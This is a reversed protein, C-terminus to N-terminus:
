RSANETGFMSHFIATLTEEQEVSLSGRGRRQRQWGASIDFSTSLTHCGACGWPRSCFLAAGAQSSCGADGVVRGAGVGAGLRPMARTWLCSVSPFMAAEQLSGGQLQPFPLIRSCLVASSDRLQCIARGPDLRATSPTLEPFRLSPICCGAPDLGEFRGSALVPSDWASDQHKPHLQHVTTPAAHAPDPQYPLLRLRLPCGSGAAHDLARAPM